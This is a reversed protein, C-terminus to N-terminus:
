AKTDIKVEFGLIDGLTEVLEAAEKSDIKGDSVAKEFWSGVVTLVQFAKFIKYWKM